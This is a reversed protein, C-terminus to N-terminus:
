AIDDGTVVCIADVDYSVVAIDKGNKGVFNAGCILHDKLSMSLTAEIEQTLLGEVNWVNIYTDESASVLWEMSPHLHLALVSRAHAAIECQLKQTSINFVCIRGSLTGAFVSDGRCQITTFSEGPMKLEATPLLKPADWVTIVGGEDAVAFLPTPALTHAAYGAEHTTAIDAIAAKHHGELAHTYLFKMGDVEFVHLVGSSTGVILAEPEAGRQVIAIGRVYNQRESPPAAAFPIPYSTMKTGTNPEWVQVGETTGVVVVDDKGARCMKAQMVTGGCQLVQCPASDANLDTTVAVVVSTVHAYVVHRASTALANPILSASIGTIGQMGSPKTMKVKKVEDSWM